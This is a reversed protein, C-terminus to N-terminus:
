LELHLDVIESPAHPKLGRFSLLVVLGEPGTKKGDKWSKVSICSSGPAERAGLRVVFLLDSRAPM